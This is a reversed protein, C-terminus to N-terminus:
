APWCSAAPGTASRPPTSRTWRWPATGASSSPTASSPRWCGTCSRRPSVVAARAATPPTGSSSGPAGPAGPPGPRPTGPPGSSGSSRTSGPTPPNQANNKEEPLTLDQSSFVLEAKGEKLHYFVGIVAVKGEVVADSIIHSQEIIRIATQRTHERVMDNVVPNEPLKPSMVSPLIHQVLNRIFGHPMEGSELSKSAATVAGCSDHGLVMVIPTEFEEVAYELSGLAANELVHGATRVVFADGLGLDFIIEAALRSDGCGFISAFPFQGSALDTRRITDQNPHENSGEVFRRNGDKLRKWAEAPTPQIGAM